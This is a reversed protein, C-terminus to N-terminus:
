GDEAEEVLRTLPAWPSRCPHSMATTARTGDEYVLAFAVHRDDGLLVTGIGKPMDTGITLSTVQGCRPCRRSAKWYPGSPYGDVREWEVPEFTDGPLMYPDRKVRM